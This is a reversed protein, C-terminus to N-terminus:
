PLAAEPASSRLLEAEFAADDIVNRGILLSCGLHDSIYAGSAGSWWRALMTQRRHGVVVLDASIAKAFAGIERAPDGIVLKAVPKLGLQRLREVGRELIAKYDDLQRAAAGAHVGEAMRIGPSEALVSLLFIKAGCGRALLAGERLATGGELSGDYALVIRKYM